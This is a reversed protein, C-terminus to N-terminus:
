LARESESVSRSVLFNKSVSCGNIPTLLSIGTGTTLVPALSIAHPKSRICWLVSNQSILISGSLWFLAIPLDDGELPRHEAAAQKETLVACGLM